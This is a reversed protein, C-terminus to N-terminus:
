LKGPKLKAKIYAKTVGEQKMVTDMGYKAILCKWQASTRTQKNKGYLAEFDRQISVKEEPSLKEFEMCAHNVLDFEMM